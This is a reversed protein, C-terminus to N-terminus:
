PNCESPLPDAKGSPCKAGQGYDGKLTIVFSKPDCTFFGADDSTGFGTVKPFTFGDPTGEALAFCDPAVGQNTPVHLGGGTWDKLSRAEDYVCDRTVTGDDACSGLATFFMMWSSLGQLGLLAVRTDSPGYEDLLDLYQQTAPNEKSREFPWFADRVYL